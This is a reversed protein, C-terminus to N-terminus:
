SFGTPPPSPPAPTSTAEGGVFENKRRAFLKKFFGIIAVIGILIFKKLALLLVWLGKFLGVKAAIGGAVLAAIGYTAVKDTSQTFDTYRHGDQFNVMSIITPAAAKVDALQQISAVVNVVLVGRRGLMRIDYNLEHDGQGFILDKAWYLKHSAADYRPPEAWGALAIRAFGQQERTKSAEATAAQMDHLLSTYDIKAADDDKVYGDEVFSIVSAWGGPRLPDFGAPVIMGLTGGASPNNWLKTLITASDAPNIYSFKAPVSVKAVGGRLVVDGHIYKIGDALRHAAALRAAPDPTPAPAPDAAHMWAASFLLLLAALLCRILKM